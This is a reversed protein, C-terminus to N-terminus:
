FTSNNYYIIENHYIKKYNFIFIKNGWEFINLYININIIIVEAVYLNEFYKSNISNFKFKLLYNNDRLCYNDIFFNNLIYKLAM